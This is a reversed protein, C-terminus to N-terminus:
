NIFYNSRIDRRYDQGSFDPKMYQLNSIKALTKNERFKASEHLYFGLSIAFDSTDHILIPLDYM